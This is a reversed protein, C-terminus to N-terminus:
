AHMSTALPLIGTLENFDDGSDPQGKRVTGTTIILSSLLPVTDVHKTAGSRTVGVSLQM